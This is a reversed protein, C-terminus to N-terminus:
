AAQAIKEAEPLKLSLLTSIGTEDMTVGYLMGAAKMTDRNHTVVVFQTHESMRKVAEAFRSTNAEDLAADVEDLMVFPSPNVTLIAFLLAVSTLAREGGSLMSLNQMRKGPPTAEIEVGFQVPADNGEEDTTEEVLRLSAKGGGFMTQFFIGFEENIAQFSERFITQSKRGLQNIVKELDGKARRLDDAQTTLFTFREQVAAHEEVVSPEISGLELLRQELKDIARQQDAALEPIVVEAAPPFASQLKGKAEEVLSELRTEVRAAEVNLRNLEQRYAEMTRRKTELTAEMTTLATVDGLSTQQETQIAKELKQFEKQWTQLHQSVRTITETHNIVAKEIDAKEQQLATLRQEVAAREQEQRTLAAQHARTAAQHAAQAAQLAHLEQAVSDRSALLTSAQTLADLDEVPEGALTKADRAVDQLKPLLAKIATLDAAEVATQLKTVVTSFEQSLELASVSRTAQRLKEQLAAYVRDISQLEKTLTALRTADLADFKALGSSTGLSANSRSNRRTPYTAPSALEQLRGQFQAMSDELTQLRVSAVERATIALNLESQWEDRQNRLTDREALLGNLKMGQQRQRADHLETTSAQLETQIKMFEQDTLTRQATLEAQENNLTRWATGYKALYASQLSATTEARQELASTQRRLLKLRPEMEHLIDEVRALNGSTETLKRRAEDRKLYFQRVGAAEEFLSRRERPSQRLAQDVMGQSIVTYNEAGIGAVALAHQLDTLRVASGNVLYESDGSRYLRRTVVVESFDFPLTGDSNDFTLSVEALSMPPRKAAGSTGSFIMDTSKTGRVAKKSQAGLVWRIADAINSKGSGNPGVVATVGPEFTLVTRKAFSKFGSLELSQLHM